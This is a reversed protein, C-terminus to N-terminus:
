VIIARFQKGIMELWRLINSMEERSEDTEEPIEGIDKLIRAMDGSLKSIGASIETEDRPRKSMEDRLKAAFVMANGIERIIMSRPLRYRDVHENSVKDM